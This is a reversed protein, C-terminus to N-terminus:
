AERFDIGMKPGISHPLTRRAMILAGDLATGASEVLVGSLEPSLLPRYRPATGGLLAIKPVGLALLRRLSAEVISLARAVIDRAVPDGAEAHDFVLPAFKGFAGPHAKGAFSALAAPDGSFRAMVDRALPSGQHVGDHALLAASLAARGLDAGSGHDSVQPGWGGFITFHEGNQAVYAAGTGLIAIGCNAGGHAGLCGTVADSALRHAAYPLKRADFAACVSPINAGALGLGVHCRAFDDRSLGSQRLADEIVAEVTSLAGDLDTFVNASGGRAEGLKEGSLNEIRARCHTGGGDVGVLLPASTM